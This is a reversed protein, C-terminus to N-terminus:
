KKVAESREAKKVEIETKVDELDKMHKIKDANAQEVQEILGSNRIMMKETKELEELRSQMGAINDRLLQKKSM